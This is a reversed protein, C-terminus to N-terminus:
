YLVAVEFGFGAEVGGLPDVEYDQVVHLAEEVAEVGAHEGLDCGM